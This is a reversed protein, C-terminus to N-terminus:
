HDPFEKASSELHPRISYHIFVYKSSQRTKIDQPRTYIIDTTIKANNIVIAKCQAYLILYTM